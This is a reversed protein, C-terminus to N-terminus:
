SATALLRQAAGLYPGRVRYEPSSREEGVLGAIFHLLTLSALCSYSHVM